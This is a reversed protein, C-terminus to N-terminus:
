KELNDKLPGLYYEKWGDAIDAYDEDPVGTHLL